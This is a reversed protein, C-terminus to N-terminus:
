SALKEISDFERGLETLVVRMGAESSEALEWPSLRALRRNPRQMWLKAKQGFVKRAAEEVCMVRRAPDTM